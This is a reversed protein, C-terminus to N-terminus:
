AENKRTALSVHSRPPKKRFNNLMQPDKDDIGGQQRWGSLNALTIVLLISVLLNALLMHILRRQAAAVSELTTINM